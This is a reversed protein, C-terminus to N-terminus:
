DYMVIDMFFILLLDLFMVKVVWKCWYGGESWVGFVWCLWGIFVNVLWLVWVLMVVKYVWLLVSFVGVYLLM